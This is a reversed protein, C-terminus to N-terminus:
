KNLSEWLIQETPNVSVGDGSIEFPHIRKDHDTGRMKKVFVSRVPPFFYLALVGDVVFEEVGFRSFEDRKGGTESLLLTTCNLKKMETILKFLNYRIDADSGMFMGFATTSDIVLRKAGMENVMDKIKGIEEDFQLAFEKPNFMGVRYIKILNEQQMKAINWHFSKMNWWINTTGEELTIYIGPDNYEAAGNYIYQTSFITKGSGAGGAVLISSGQLFGGQLLDDMGPIGTSVREM